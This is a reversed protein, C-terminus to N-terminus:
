QPQEYITKSQFRARAAAAPSPASADKEDKKEDGVAILLGHDGGKEEEAIMRWTGRNSAWRQTIETSRMTTEDVRQWNVTVYVDADGDKRMQFGTLECDVIRVGKGWTAHTRAFETQLSDRVNELAVDMRGFRAATNLDYASEALRQAPTPPAICGVLALASCFALASARLM